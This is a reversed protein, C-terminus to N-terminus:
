QSWRELIFECGLGYTKSEDMILAMDPFQIVRWGDRIAQLPTKYPWDDPDTPGDSIEGNHVISMGHVGSNLSTSGTQLYLLDQYKPESESLEELVQRLNEETLKGQRFAEICDEMKRQKGDHM